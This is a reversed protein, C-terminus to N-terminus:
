LQFPVTLHYQHFLNALNGVGLGLIKAAKRVSLHGNELAHHLMKVFTYSFQKPFDTSNSEQKKKSLKEKTNEDILKLNFLRWALSIPAVRLKAAIKCLHPIDNCHHPEIMQDLSKRPMLLAAAFNDALKEIRKDKPTKASNPEKCNQELSNSERNDPKMEDWTLVHFLEHALDFFRRGESEKRNILIIGIEQLSCAAGSISNPNPITDVFLVPINLENEIKEILFQAPVAGLALQIALDEARKQAIEYSSRESLRLTHKTAREQIKQHVCLWRFLGIWQRAQFEFDRLTKPPLNPAARWFFEAEGSTSFPDILSEIDCDFLAAIKLLEDPKLARKGNEIDSVTQRDNLTLSKTLQDQNWGKAKRAAKIRSGILKQSFNKLIVVVGHLISIERM